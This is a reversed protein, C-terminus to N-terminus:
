PAAEPRRFLQPGFGSESKTALGPRGWLQSQNSSQLVKPGPGPLSLVTEGVEQNTPHCFHVAYLLALTAERKYTKELDVM